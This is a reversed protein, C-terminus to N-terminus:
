LEGGKPRAGEGTTRDPVAEVSRHPPTKNEAGGTTLNSALAAYCIQKLNEQVEHKARKLLDAQGKLITINWTFNEVARSAKRGKLGEREVLAQLCEHYEMASSQIRLIRHHVSDAAEMLAESSQLIAEYSTVLKRLVDPLTGQPRLTPYPGSVDFLLLPAGDGGRLRSALSLVCQMLNSVAPLGCLEKFPVVANQVNERLDTAERLPQAATKFLDDLAKVPMPRMSAYDRGRRAKRVSLGRKHPKGGGRRNTWPSSPCSSRSSSARTSCPTTVMRRVTRTRREACDAPIGHIEIYVYPDVVHGKAGSGRPKPFNLGSIIKIHLLQPSVGPVSDKTEASFYSVEERMIAPRLVYGCNGNQRFWGVNLDMMLGPTQFNMAVVQCGCKWFDQPNLNSSDLRLPSPYIRSLFRKNYDVFDGPREGAFRSATAEDFSCFEWFKQSRLSTPFNRFAVSQCLSVLDSLERSLRFRRAHGPSCTIVIEGEAGTVRQSLEAGEDEEPVEGDAGTCAVGLKLAKLLVRGRLEAPSLLYTSDPNPPTTYLQDGLIGQLHQFMVAQQRLSCHNELCVILPYESAVFAYRNIVEVVSRFGVQSTLTHGTFVVPEGDAGDWVDIEVSRCGMRLARVYGSVEARGRFQDQILYTNHSSNIYYHSLPQSMDQCVAGHEPDFIHCEASTLYATFGDLSLWGNRRADPCPEYSHVVRLADAESVQALGQEAELFRMVDKADLFEKNSSFQVLLFYIEPRTCLDHFAEAFEQRTVGGKERAKHFEKFKLEAKTTKVWPNVTRILEVAVAVSLEDGHDGDSHNGSVHQGGSIGHCGDGHEGGGHNSGDEHGCGNGHDGDGHNCNSHQGGGLKGDGCHGNGKAVASDYLQSLWASRLGQNYHSQLADLAHMGYSALYRLGTVWVKAVDASPAVLDLTEFGEGYVVSFACDESVQEHVAAARFVDTNRGTRVERIASVAISAKGAEKKSPEWRLSRLDSDLLFYRSYVRASPRVKRLESGEVMASICDGAASIRREAPMSSFSVTKKRDRRQRSGDKIISAKRPAGSSTDLGVANMTDVGASGPAPSRPGTMDAAGCDGNSVGNEAAVDYHIASNKGAIPSSSVTNEEGTEAMHATAVPETIQRHGYALAGIRVASRQSSQSSLITARTKSPGYIKLIVRNKRM